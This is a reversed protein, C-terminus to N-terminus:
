SEFELVLNELRRRQADLRVLAAELEADGPSQRLAAEVESRATALRHFEGDARAAAMAAPNASAPMMARKPTPRLLAFGIVLGAAIAAPVLWRRQRGRPHAVVHHLVAERLGAPPSVEVPLAVTLRTRQEVMPACRECAGAHDEIAQAAEPALRGALYEDFQRDLTDCDSM